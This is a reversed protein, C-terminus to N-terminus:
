RSVGFDPPMGGGARVARLELCPVRIGFAPFLVDGSTWKEAKAGGSIGAGFVAWREEDETDRAEGRTGARAVGRGARWAESRRRSSRRRVSCAESSAISARM